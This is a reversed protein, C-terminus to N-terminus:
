FAADKLLIKSWSEYSSLNEGCSIWRLDEIEVKGTELDPRAQISFKDTNVTVSLVVGIHRRGVVNSWDILVLNPECMIRDGSIGMFSWTGLIDAGAEGHEGKLDIIMLEEARERIATTLLTLRLNMGASLNKVDHHADRWSPHGGFGISRQGVLLKEGQKDPRKYSLIQDHQNRIIMYTAFHAIDNRTEAVSRPLWVMCGELAEWDDRTVKIIGSHGSLIDLAKLKEVGLTLSKDTAM